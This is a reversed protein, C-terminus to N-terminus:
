NLESELNKFESDFNPDTEADIQKLLEAETEDGTEQNVETPTVKLEQDVQNQNIITCSSFIFASIILASFIFFINKM